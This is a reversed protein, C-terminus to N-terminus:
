YKKIFEVIDNIASEPTSAGSAIAVNKKNELISTDLEDINSIMISLINPHSLTAIEYLRKTNSSSSDGVIIILDVDDKINKVAEQRLRTTNCIEEKIRASPIHTKIDKFINDMELTNLTTQNIVLPSEDTVNEFHIGMKVDYFIVNPSLSLAAISEPHNNIGIYIIQHNLKSEDEILKHNNKVKPCTTDFVILKKDYAIKNLKPDHGHASFIIISGESAEKILETLPKNEDYLTKIGQDYLWNIVIQNHVLKGLVYVEKNPYDKRTKLAINIANLVGACYSKPELVTVNIM